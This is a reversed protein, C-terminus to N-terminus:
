QNIANEYVEKLKKNRVKISFKGDKIVKRCNISMKRRLSSDEILKSTRKYLQEILRREPNGIDYVKKYIENGKYYPFDIVFGTKGDETIERCNKTGGTNVTVIPVGLSMSELPQFGFTDVFSPYFFIDSEGLEHIIKERSMLNRFDIGVDRYKEKLKEPTNSVFVIKMDYREKLKKFTELAVLGGKIWFYRSIFILKINNTKKVKELLPVAPNVVTMKEEIKKNPFLELIDQKIVETWPMIKKCHEDLLIKSVSKKGPGFKRISIWLQWASEFDAVWPTKNLSMSHACHILDYPKDTRTKHANPLPIPFNDVGFRLVNKSLNSIFFKKKNTIVGSQKGANLYTIGKPPYEVLTHYYTSDPFKWPYQLYVRIDKKSELAM